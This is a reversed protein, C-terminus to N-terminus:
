TFRLATGVLLITQAACLATVAKGFAERELMAATAELDARAATFVKELVHSDPEPSGAQAPRKAHTEGSPKAAGPWRDLLPHGPHAAAPIRQVGAAPLRAGRHGPFM